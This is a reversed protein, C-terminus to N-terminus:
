LLCLDGKKRVEGLVVLVLLMAISIFVLTAPAKTVLAADEERRATTTRASSPLAMALTRRSPCSRARPTVDRRKTSARLTMPAHPSCPSSSLSLSLPFSTQLRGRDRGGSRRRARWGRWGPTARSEIRRWGVARTRNVRSAACRCPRPRFSTNSPALPFPSGEGAAARVGPRGGARFRRRGDKVCVCLGSFFVM